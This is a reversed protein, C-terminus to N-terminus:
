FILPYTERKNLVEGLGEQLLPISLSAPLFEVPFYPMCPMQGGGVPPTLPPRFSFIKYWSIIQMNSFM